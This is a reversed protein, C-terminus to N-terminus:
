TDEPTFSSIVGRHAPYAELLESRGVLRFDKFDFGPNVMCGALIYSNKDKLEAAFICGRPLLVQPSEGMELDLGISEVRYQGQELIHIHTRSGAHFYWLEDSALQHFYSKQHGDLLFYISTAISRTGGGGTIQLSNPNRYVEKYYGGEPHAQLGLKEIWYAAGM